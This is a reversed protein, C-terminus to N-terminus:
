RSTDDKTMPISEHLCIWEHEEVPKEELGDQSYCESRM